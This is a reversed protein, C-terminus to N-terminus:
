QWSKPSFISTYLIHKTVDTFKVTTKCFLNADKILVAKPRQLFSKKKFYLKTAFHFGKTQAIWVDSAAHNCHNKLHSFKCSSCCTM